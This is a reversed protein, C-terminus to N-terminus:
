RYRVFWVVAILVIVGASLLIASTIYVSATSASVIVQVVSEAMNGGLDYVRLTVNHTGQILGSFDFEINTTTWDDSVVLVGDVLIEYHEMFDDTATWNYTQHSDGQAYRITPPSYSIVPATTDGLVTVLVSNTATNGSTDNAYLTFNHVGIDLGDLSIRVVPEDPNITGNEFPEGDKTIRYMNPYDDTINWSLSYGRETFTFEIPDPGEIVPTVNEYIQLSVINEAFNSNQDFVVLKVEYTDIIMAPFSASVNYVYDYTTNIWSTTVNLVGDIWVEISSPYEDEVTWTLTVNEADILVDLDSPGTIVPSRVDSAVATLDYFYDGLGVPQGLYTVTWNIFAIPIDIFIVTGNAPTVKTDYPTGNKYTVQVIAGVIPSLSIEFYTFLELDLYDPN